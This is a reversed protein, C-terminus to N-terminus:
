MVSDHPTTFVFSFYYVFSSLGAILLRFLSHCLYIVCKNIKNLYFKIRIIDVVQSCVGFM